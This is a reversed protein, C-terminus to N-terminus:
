TSIMSSSSDGWNVDESGLGVSMPWVWGASNDGLNSITESSMHM